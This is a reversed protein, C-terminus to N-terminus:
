ERIRDATEYDRQRQAEHREVLQEHLVAEDEESLVIRDEGTDSPDRQMGTRVGYSHSALPRVRLSLNLCETRHKPQM